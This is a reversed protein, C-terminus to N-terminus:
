DQVVGLRQNLAPSARRKKAAEAERESPYEGLVKEEVGFPTSTHAILKWKGQSGGIAKQQAM